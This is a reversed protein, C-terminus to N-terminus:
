HQSPPASSTAQTWIPGVRAWEGAWRTLLYRQSGPVREILGKRDAPAPRLYAQRSGYPSDLLATTLEVLQRNAFGTVLHCFGVLAALVAMVRPDGFRIGPAHPGDPTVSPRTVQALTVM